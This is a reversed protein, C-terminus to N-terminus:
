ARRKTGANENFLKIMEPSLEDLDNIIKYRSYYRSVADSQIGFSYVKAVKEAEIVEDTLNYSEYPIGDEDCGDSTEPNGDSFVILVKNKEPRKKLEKVTRNVAYGDNNYGSGDFYSNHDVKLLEKMDIRQNWNKHTFYYENFGYIAFTRGAYELSRALVGVAKCAKQSRSGRMSGSEDVLIAIALDKNDNQLQEKREFIRDSGTFMKKIRKKDLRGSRYGSEYREFELDKLVSVARKTKPLENDIFDILEELRMGLSKHIGFIEDSTKHEVESGSFVKVESKEREVEEEEEDKLVEGRELKVEEGEGEKGEEGKESKSKAEEKKAKEEKAIEKKLEKILQKILENIKKKLEEEKEKDKESEKEKEEDRELMLPLLYPLIYEVVYLLLKYTSKIEPVKKVYKLTKEYAYYVEDSIFDDAFPKSYYKGLGMEFGVLFGYQLIKKSGWVEEYKKPDLYKHQYLQDTHYEYLTKYNSSLYDVAGPYIKKIKENVRVDELANVVTHFEMIDKGHKKSLKEATNVYADTTTSFRLHASEHIIYALDSKYFSKSKPYYIIKTKPNASWRDGPKLKVGVKDSIMNAILDFVSKDIM